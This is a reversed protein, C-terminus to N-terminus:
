TITVGVHNAIGFLVEVIIGITLFLRIRRDWPIKAKLSHQLLSVVLITGGVTVPAITLIQSVTEVLTKLINGPYYRVSCLLYVLIIFGLSISEKAYSRPRVALKKDM